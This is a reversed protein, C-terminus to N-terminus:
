ISLLRFAKDKEAMSVLGLVTGTEETDHPTFGSSVEADRSM